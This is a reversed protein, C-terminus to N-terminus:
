RSVGSFGTGSVALPREWWSRGVADASDFVARCLGSRGEASGLSWRWWRPLLFGRDPRYGGTVDTVYGETM